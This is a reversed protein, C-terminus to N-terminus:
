CPDPVLYTLDTLTGDIVIDGYDLRMNSSVGNEFLRYSVQYDPIGEQEHPLFYSVQVPWSSAGALDMGEGVQSVTDTAVNSPKGIFSSVLFYHDTEAGEFVSASMLSKGSAATEVLDQVFESPFIIDDPLDLVVDSPQSFTAASSTGSRDAFGSVTEDLQAGAYRQVEFRFQDGDGSEWSSMRLDRVMVGGDTDSLQTVLRQGLTYGDCSNGTWELVMRGSLGAIDASSEAASLKLDYAARHNALEAAFAGSASAAVLVVSLGSAVTSFLRSQVDRGHPQRRERSRFFCM